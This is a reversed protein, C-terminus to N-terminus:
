QTARQRAEALTAALSVAQAADILVPRAGARETEFVKAAYVLLERVLSAAASVGRRAFASLALAAVATVYPAAFSTGNSSRYAGGLGAGFIGVGPALLRVHGGRTSFPALAHDPALAGVALVGPLSAPVFHENRGSNGSAAVVVCGRALAYRISDQHPILGFGTEGPPLSGLSCNIVRADSDAAAKVAADIDAYTGVGFVGGNDRRAAALVRMPVVSCAGAAGKAMSRGRACLISCVLTGHGVEDDPEPDRERYDGLLQIGADEILEAPADVFDAGPLLRGDFEPHKADVGSDLVAIKVSPTGPEIEHARAFGADEFAWRYFSPPATPASPEALQASAFSSVLRNLCAGEVLPNRRLADLVSAAPRDTHLVVEFTRSLGHAQEEENFLPTADAHLGARPEFVRAYSLVDAQSRLSADLARSGSNVSPRIGKRRLAHRPAVPLADSHRVRLMFSLLRSRPTM